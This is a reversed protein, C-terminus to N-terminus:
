HRYKLHYIVEPLDDVTEVVYDAGANRLISACSIRKIDLTESGIKEEHEKSDIHVHNSFKSVGVTICNANNGELIGISCDDVKIIEQSKAIGLRKMNEFIMEPSPRNKNVDDTAVITDFKLGQDFLFPELEDVIERTYGTTSGIKIGRHRLNEFIKDSNEIIKANEKLTSIQLPLFEKYIREVDKEDPNRKYLNKWKQHIEPHFIINSIHDYKAKGMPGRIVPMSCNIGFMQFVRKFAHAPALSYKDCVTGALDFIVAKIRPM